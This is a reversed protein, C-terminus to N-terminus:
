TMGGVDFYIAFEGDLGYRTKGEGAVRALAERNLGRVATTCGDKWFWRSLEDLSRVRAGGEQSNVIVNGEVMGAVHIATRATVERDGHKRDSDAIFFAARVDGPRPNVKTFVRRYLDDATTRILLGTAAYLAM